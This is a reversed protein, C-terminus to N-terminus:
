LMIVAMVMVMLSLMGGIENGCSLDDVQVSGDRINKLVTACHPRAVLSGAISADGITDPVGFQEDIGLCELYELQQFVNAPNKEVRELATKTKAYWEWYALPEDPDHPLNGTYAPCLSNEKLIERFAGPFAYEYTYDGLDRHDVYDLYTTGVDAFIPALIPHQTVGVGDVIMTIRDNVQLNSLESRADDTRLCNGVNFGLSSSKATNTVLPNVKCEHWLSHLMDVTSHWSYFLVDAPAAWTAFIGAVTGHVENHIGDQLRQSFGQYTNEQTIMNFLVSYSAGSPPQKSRLDSRPICSSRGNDDRYNSYPRGSFCNGTSTQSSYTRTDSAGQSGGLDTVINSCELFNSCMGSARKSLDKMIDWYPVTICAFEPRLSRLMNEYVLVYRRHWLVFGCTDHAELESRHEQHVKVMAQHLGATIATEVAFLYLEKEKETIYDWSKRIRAGISCKSNSGILRRSSTNNGTATATVTICAILLLHMM